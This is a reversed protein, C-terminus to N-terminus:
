AAVVRNVVIGVAAAAMGLALHDTSAHGVLKHFSASGALVPV